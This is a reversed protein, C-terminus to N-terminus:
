RQNQLKEIADRHAKDIKAPDIHSKLAEVRDAYVTNAPNNRIKAIESETARKRLRDIEEEIISGKVEAFSHLRSERREKVRVLHVAGRTVIPQSWEGPKIAFAVEALAPEIDSAKVWGLEGRHRAYGPDDSYERAIATFDGGAVLKARAEQARALAMQPTRGQLSVVIHSPSILAADTFRKPDSKYLEEARKELAPVPTNRDVLELQKQALFGERLQELRKRFLPDDEVKQASARQALTRNVFIADIIKLITEPNARAEDRLYEPFRTMAAEFDEVTVKIPGNELLVTSPDAPAPAAAAAAAFATGIALAIMACASKIKWM